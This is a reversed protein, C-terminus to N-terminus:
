LLSISSILLSGDPKGIGFGFGEAGKGGTSFLLKLGDGVSFGELGKTVFWAGMM